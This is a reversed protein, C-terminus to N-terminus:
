TSGERGKKKEKKKTNVRLEFKKNRM